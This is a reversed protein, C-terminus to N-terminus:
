HHHREAMELLQERQSPTLVDGVDALANLLRQSFADALELEAARIEELAARDIEPRSLEAVLAERHARHEPGLVSLEDIVDNVITQVQAEQADTADVRDLTWGIAFEAHAKMQEPDHTGHHRHGFARPGWWGGASALSVSLIAGLAIVASLAGAAAIGTRLGRRPTRTPGREPQTQQTM